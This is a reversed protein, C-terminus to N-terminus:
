FLRNHSSHTLWSVKKVIDRVETPRAVTQFGREHLPETPIQGLATLILVHDPRMLAQLEDLVHSADGLGQLDVIVLRPKPLAHVYSKATAWDNTAVVEYGEERLQARLLARRPWQSDLLVIDPQISPAM